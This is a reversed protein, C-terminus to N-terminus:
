QKTFLWYYLNNSTRNIYIEGKYYFTSDQLNSVICDISNETQIISQTINTVKIHIPYKTSEYFKSFIPYEWADEDIYLGINKYPIM